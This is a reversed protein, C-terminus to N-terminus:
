GVFRRTALHAYRNHAPKLWEGIAQSDGVFEMIGTKKALPIVVYTRFRLNRERTKRDRTLLKNSMEFVQEM